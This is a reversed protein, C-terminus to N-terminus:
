RRVKVKVYLDGPVQGQTGMGKLRIRTGNKIGVPVMVMLRKTSGSRKYSVEKEAGAGAELRSVVLRTKLDRGRPPLMDIGLARKLVVRYVWAVFRETRSLKRASVELGPSPSAGRATSSTGPPPWTRFEFVVGRGGFVHNVFEPDFRLGAERFMRDVDAFFAPDSFSNTFVQSQDYSTYGPAGAHAFPSKRAMDYQQRRSEDGLVSYAENIEKFKEEAQKENGPNRDPHHLLALHRFAKKVEEQTAEPSIGLINYYDKM